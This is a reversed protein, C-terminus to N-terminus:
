AWFPEVRKFTEWRKMASKGLRAGRACHWGNILGSAFCLDAQVGPSLADDHTLQSLTARVQGTDNFAGLLDQLEKLKSIFRKVAKKKYLPGYFEAAYRLKKLSIRLRHFDRQEVTKLHRGRKRAKMLFEDLRRPAISKVKARVADRDDFSRSQAAAAVDDLLIAFEVSSVRAVARDWADRRALDLRERLLGFAADGGAAEVPPAFLEDAFVDLDRAPAISSGFAKTRAQLERHAPSLFEEGFAAFAVTLRRLGVRLQHLGEVERSRTVAAVNAAVHALCELLTVRYADEVTMGRGIKLPRASVAMAHFELSARTSRITAPRPDEM